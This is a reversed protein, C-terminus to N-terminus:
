TRVAAEDGAEHGGGDVRGGEVGIRDGGLGVGGEAPQGARSPGEHFGDAATQGDGEEAGAGAEEAGPLAGEGLLDSGAM